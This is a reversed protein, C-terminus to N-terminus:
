QTRWLYLIDHFLLNKDNKLNGNVKLVLLGSVVVAKSSHSCIPRTLSFNVGSRLSNRQNKRATVSLFHTLFFGHKFTRFNMEEITFRKLMTPTTTAYCGELSNVHTRNGYSAYVWVRPLLVNLKLSLYLLLITQTLPVFYWSITFEQRKKFEWQGQSKFFWFCCCSEIFSFLNTQNAFFKSRKEYFQKPKKKIHCKSFTYPFIWTQFNQREDRRDDVKAADNTYHYCLRRGLQHCPNSELVICLSLCGTFLYEIEPFSQVNSNHANSPCFIWSVTFEQRKKFEWLGQSTVFWFCCSEILSFCLLRTLSFVILKEFFLKPKKQHSVWFIQLSFDLNSFDSIWRKSRLGEWCRQHLPLMAAKWATSMPEIGTRHM